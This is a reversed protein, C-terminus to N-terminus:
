GGFKIGATVPVYQTNSPDSFINHFRAELFLTAGAVRYDFGTGVNVGFDTASTNGFLAADKGTGKSNYVGIGGIIYPALRGRPSKQFCYVVNGTGYIFRQNVDFSGTPSEADLGFQAYNADIQLAFPHGEHALLLSAAAHWGLKAITNYDGTPISLGGGLSFSASQASVSPAVLMGVLCGIVGRLLRKV